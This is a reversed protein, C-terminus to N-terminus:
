AQSEARTLLISTVIFHPPTTARKGEKDKQRIESLSLTSIREPPCLVFVKAPELERM